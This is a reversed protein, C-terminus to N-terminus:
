VSCITPLTLHTYSVPRRKRRRYELTTHAKRFSCSQWIANRSNRSCMISALDKSSAVIESPKRMESGLLLHQKFGKPRSKHYSYRSTDTHSASPYYLPQMFCSSKSNIISTEPRCIYYPYFESATYPWNTYYSTVRTKGETHSPKFGSLLPSQTRYEM